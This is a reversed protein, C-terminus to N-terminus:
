WGDKRGGGVHEDRGDLVNKVSSTNYHLPDSVQTASGFARPTRLPASTLWLNTTKNYNYCEGFYQGSHTAGGCLTVSGSVEAGSIGYVAPGPFPPVSKDCSVPDQGPVLVISESASNSGDGPGLFYLSSKWCCSLNCFSSIFFFKLTKM